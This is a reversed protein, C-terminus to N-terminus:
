SQCNCKPALFGIPLFASADCYAKCDFNEKTHKVKKCNKKFLLISLALCVLLFGIIVLFYNKMDM